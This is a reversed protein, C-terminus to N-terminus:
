GAGRVPQVVADHDHDGVRRDDATVVGRRDRVCVRTEKSKALDQKRWLRPAADPGSGSDELYDPLVLCSTAGERRTRLEKVRGIARRWTMVQFDWHAASVLGTFPRTQATTTAATTPELGCE